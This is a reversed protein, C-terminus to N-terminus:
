RGACTVQGGSRRRRGGDGPLRLGRHVHGVKEDRWVDRADDVLDDPQRAPGQAVRHTDHETRGVM